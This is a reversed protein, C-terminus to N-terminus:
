AIPNDSTCASLRNLTRPPASPSTRICRVRELTLYKPNPTAPTNDQDHRTRQIPDRGRSRQAIRCSEGRRQGYLASIAVADDTFAITAPPHRRRSRARANSRLPTASAATVPGPMTRSGPTRSSSPGQNADGAAGHRPGRTPCEAEDDDGAAQACVPLREEILAGLVQGADRHQRRRM